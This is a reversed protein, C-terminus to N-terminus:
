GDNPVQQIGHITYSSDSVRVWQSVAEKLSVAYLPKLQNTHTKTDYYSVVYKNMM